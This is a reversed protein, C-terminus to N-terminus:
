LLASVNEESSLNNRIYDQHRTYREYESAVRHDCPSEGELMLPNAPKQVFIYSQRQNVDDLLPSSTVDNQDGEYFMRRM